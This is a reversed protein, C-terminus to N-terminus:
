KFASVIRRGDNFVTIKLPMSLKYTRNSKMQADHFFNEVQDDIDDALAANDRFAKPALKALAMGKDIKISGGDLSITRPEKFYSEPTYAWELEISVVKNACM